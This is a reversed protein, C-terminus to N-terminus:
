WHHDHIDIVVAIVIDGPAIKTNGLVIQILCIQFRGQESIWRASLTDNDRVLAITSKKNKLRSNRLISSRNGRNRPMACLRTLGVLITSWTSFWWIAESWWSGTASKTPERQTVTRQPMVYRSKTTITVSVKKM